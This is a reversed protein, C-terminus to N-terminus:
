CPMGEGHGFEATRCPVLCRAAERASVPRTRMRPVVALPEPVRDPEPPTTAPGRPHLKDPNIVLWLHTILGDHVDVALVAITTGAIRVAVGPTGNVDDEVLEVAPDRRILGLFLRAAKDRGV